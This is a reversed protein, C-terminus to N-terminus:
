SLFKWSLGSFGVTDWQKYVAPLNAILNDDNDTNLVSSGDDDDLQSDDVDVADQVHTFLSNMMQMLKHITLYVGDGLM